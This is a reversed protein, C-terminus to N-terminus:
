QKARVKAVFQYAFLAPWINALLYLLSYFFDIVIKPAKEFKLQIPIPTYEITEFVYSSEEILEKFTKKTFFRLHTKDFPGKEVYDFYGLFIKLRPYINVINPISIVLYGGDNLNDRLSVLVEEPDVLHELIDGLIISDYSDQISDRTIDLVRADCYKSAEKVYEEDLDVATVKYGREVLPKAVYGGASGVDLVTEGERVLNVIKYHSSWKFPKHTYIM